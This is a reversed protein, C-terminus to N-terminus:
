RRDYKRRFIKFDPIKKKRKRHHHVPPDDPPLGAIHGGSANNVAIERVFKRYTKAM